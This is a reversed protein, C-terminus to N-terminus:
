SLQFNERSKLGFCRRRKTPIVEHVKHISTQTFSERKFTIEFDELLM